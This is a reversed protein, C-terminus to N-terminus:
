IVWPILRWKVKRKYALYEEGYEEALSKEEIFTTLAFLGIMVPAYFLSYVSRFVLSLGLIMFIIGLYLPHRVVKYIGSSIVTTKQRLGPIIGIEKFALIWVLGSLLTLVVGIIFTLYNQALRPQPTLPLVFIPVGWAIFVYAKQLVKPIKFFKEKLEPRSMILFCSAFGILNVMVLCVFVSKESLM